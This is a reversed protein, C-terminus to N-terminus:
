SAAYQLRKRKSLARIANFELTFLSKDQTKTMTETKSQKQRKTKHM